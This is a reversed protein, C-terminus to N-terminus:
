INPNIYCHDCRAALPSFDCFSNAPQSLASIVLCTLVILMTKKILADLPLCPLARGLRKNPDSSRLKWCVLNVQITTMQTFPFQRILATNNLSSNDYVISVVATASYCISSFLTAEGEGAANNSKAWSRDLRGRKKKGLYKDSDKVTECNGHMSARSINLTTLHRQRADTWSARIFYTDIM